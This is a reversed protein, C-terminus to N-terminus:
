HLHFTCSFLSSSLYNIILHPGHFLTDPFLYYFSFFPLDTGNEREGTFTKRQSDDSYVVVTM